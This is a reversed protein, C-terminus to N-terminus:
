DRTRLSNLHGQLPEKPENLVDLLVSHLLLVFGVILPLSALMVTGPPTVTGTLASRIWHYAGFTTGTISLTLGALFFLSVLGFDRVVYQVWLRRLARRFLKGPFTALTKLESLHSGTKPYRAPIFVDQVRARHLGLETLVSIEFFFGHDVDGELLLPVMERHIATFGNTPDFVTWYGSAIKALLSLGINGFRRVRPMERLKRLHLFRNGKTYDAVGRLIPAVLAPIFTADMQDDADMKVIVDMGDQWARHYGTLMAAGVGHNRSHRILVVRQDGTAEVQKASSDQSGDDVVYIKRVFPPISLIVRAVTEQANYMPIVVAIAASTEM